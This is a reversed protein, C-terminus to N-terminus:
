IIQKRFTTPSMGTNNKFSTVFGSESSFGTKFAIEKIQMDTTKLLRQAENIRVKILYEHPSFGVFQKFVRSFHFPSLSASDAIDELSIPKDYNAAIFKVANSIGDDTHGYALGSANDLVYCLMTHIKVSIDANTLATGNKRCMVIDVLNKEVMDVDADQVVNAQRLDAFRCIDQSSAGNFHVWYFNFYEDSGYIHPRSCNILALCGKKLELKNGGSEAYGRGEVVYLLLNWDYRSRDIHYGGHTVQVGCLSSHFLMNADSPNVTDFFVESKEAIWM